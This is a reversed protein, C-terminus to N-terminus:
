DGINVKEPFTLNKPKTKNKKNWLDSVIRYTRYYRILEKVPKVHVAFGEIGTRTTSATHLIMGGSLRGHIKNLGMEYYMHSYAAIQMWYSDDISKGTKLDSIYLGGLSIKKNSIGEYEKFEFRLVNDLTGAEKNQISFVTKESELVSLGTIKVFAHLKIFDLYWEQNHICFACDDPKEDSKFNYYGITEGRSYLDWAHHITSGKDQSERMIQDARDNGVDGRWRALEPKAVISLKTTVSPYMDFGDKTEVKYWHENFYEILKVTM